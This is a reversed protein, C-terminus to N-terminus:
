KFNKELITKYEEIRQTYVSIQQEKMGLVTRMNLIENTYYQEKNALEQTLRANETYLKDIEM